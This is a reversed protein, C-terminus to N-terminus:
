NSEENNEERPSLGVNLTKTFEGMFWQGSARRTRVADQFNFVIVTDNFWGNEVGDIDTFHAELPINEAQQIYFGHSTFMRFNGGINTTDTKGDFFWERSYNEGQVIRVQVGPIAQGTEENIVNGRIVFNAHPSGYMCSVFTTSFGFLALLAVFVANFKKLFSRNLKKM